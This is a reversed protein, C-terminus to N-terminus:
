LVQKIYVLLVPPLAVASIYRIVNEELFIRAWFFVAQIKAASIAVVLKLSQQQRLIPYKALCM